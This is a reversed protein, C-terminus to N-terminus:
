NLQNFWKLNFIAKITYQDEHKVSIIFLNTKLNCQFIHKFLLNVDNVKKAFKSVKKVPPKQEISLQPNINENLILENEINNNSIFSEDFIDPSFLDEFLLDDAKSNGSEECTNFLGCPKEHGCLSNHNHM